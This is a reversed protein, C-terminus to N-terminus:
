QEFSSMLVRQTEVSGSVLQNTKYGSTDPEANVLLQGAQQASFRVRSRRDPGV